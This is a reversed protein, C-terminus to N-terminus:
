AKLYHQIESVENARWLEAQNENLAIFTPAEQVGYQMALDMFDAQGNDIIRGPFSINETVWVKVAPCKPCTLTTFLLYQM